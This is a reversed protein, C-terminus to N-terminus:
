GELACGMGENMVKLRGLIKEKRALVEEERRKAEAREVGEEQMKEKEREKKRDEKEFRRKWMGVYNVWSQRVWVAWWVERVWEVLVKDGAGSDMWRMEFGKERPEAALFPAGTDPHFLTWRFVCLLKADLSMSAPPPRPTCALPPARPLADLYLPVDRPSPPNAPLYDNSPHDSLSPPPSSASSSPSNVLTTCSSGTPSIPSAPDNPLTPKLEPTTPIPSQSKVIINHPQPVDDDAWGDQGAPIAQILLERLRQEEVQALNTARKTYFEPAISPFLTFVKEKVAARTAKYWAEIPLDQDGFRYGPYHQPIWQTVFPVWPPAREELHAM